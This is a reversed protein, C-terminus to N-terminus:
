TKLPKSVSMSRRILSTERTNSKLRTSETKPIERETLKPHEKARRHSSMGELMIQNLSTDIRPMTRVEVTGGKQGIEAATAEFSLRKVTRDLAIIGNVQGRETMTGLSPTELLRHSILALRVVTESIEQGIEIMEITLM